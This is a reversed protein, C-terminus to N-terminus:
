FSFFIITIFIVEHINKLETFSTWLSEAAEQEEENLNEFSPLPASTEISDVDNKAAKANWFFSFIYIFGIRWM